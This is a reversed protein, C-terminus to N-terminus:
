NGPVAPLRSRGHEKGECFWVVHVAQSEIEIGIEFVTDFGHQPSNQANQKFLSAGSLDIEWDQIHKLHDGSIDPRIEESDSSYLRAMFVSDSPDTSTKTFEELVPEGKKLVAGKLVLYQAKFVLNYGNIEAANGLKWNGEPGFGQNPGVEIIYSKSAIITPAGIPWHILSQALGSQAAGISKAREPDSSKLIRDHLREHFTDWIRDFLYQNACFGGILFLADVSGVRQLQAELLHLIENVIPDFVRERLDSVTVVLQGNFFEDDSLYTHDYDSVDFCEFLLDKGDQKGTFVLKESYTFAHMYHMLNKESLRINRIRHWEELYAHFNLDLFHSGCSADSSAWREAIQTLNELVQYIATDISGDGADCVMFSQNPKLNLDKWLGCYVAGAEPESIIHLRDRGGTYEQTGSPATLGAAHAASQMMEGSRVSWTAPIAYEYVCLFDNFPM